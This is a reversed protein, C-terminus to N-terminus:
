DEVRIKKPRKIKEPLDGAPLIRQYQGSTQVMVRQGPRISPDGEVYNQVITLTVGKETTVVYEIGSHDSIAQETMHGAVGAVLAGALMGALSGGGNGIYSGGLAGGLAGATAGVGTNQGTIEVPHESIVTGFVVISAQGVDQYGYRNQGPQTCATLLSVSLLLTISKKM